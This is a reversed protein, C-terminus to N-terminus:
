YYYFRFDLSVDNRHPINTDPTWTRRYVLAIGTGVEPRRITNLPGFSYGLGGGTIIGPKSGVVGGVEAIFEIQSHTGFLQDIGYWYGRTGGAFRFDGSELLVQPEIFVDLFFSLNSTEFVNRLLPWSLIFDHNNHDDFELRFDPTFTEFFAYWGYHEQLDPSHSALLLILLM